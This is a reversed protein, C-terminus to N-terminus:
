EESGVDGRAKVHYRGYILAQRLLDRAFLLRDLDGALKQLAPWIDDKGLLPVISPTERLFDACRKSVDKGQKKGRAELFLFAAYLGQEELVSLAETLLKEEVGKIEALQKGLKACALDLNEM